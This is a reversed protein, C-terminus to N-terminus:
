LRRREMRGARGITRLHRGVSLMSALLGLLTGFLVILAMHSADFFRLGSRRTM